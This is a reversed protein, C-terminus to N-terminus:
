LELTGLQVDDGAEIPTKPTRSSTDAKHVIFVTSGPGLGELVFRGDDDTTASGAGEARGAESSADVIAGVVPRGDDDVVTGRARAWPELRVTLEVDEGDALAVSVRAVGQPALVRLSFDGPRVDHLEFHGSPDWVFPGLPGTGSPRLQFRPVPRGDALVNGRVTALEHLVIEINADAAVDEAAAIGLGRPGTVDLQYTAASATAISFGGDIDSVARALEDRGSSRAEVFADAIPQGDTDVVRGALETAVTDVVIEVRQADVSTVALERPGEVIPVVARRQLVELGWTGAPVNDFSFSGDAQVGVAALDRDDHHLRVRLDDTAGGRNRVVGSVEGPAVLELAVDDKGGPSIEASASGTRGDEARASVIWSGAPVSAFTFAGAGDAVEALGRVAKTQRMTEFTAPGPPAELTLRAGGGEAVRGELRGGRTLPLVLSDPDPGISREIRPGVGGDGAEAHFSWVGEHVGSLEFTGDLATDVQLLNGARHSAHVRADPVPDEGEDVVRGTVTNGRQVVLRLDDRTELLAVRVSMPAPTSASPGAALLQYTAPQLPAIRFRGDADARVGQSARAGRYAYGTARPILLAYNVSADPVPTGREDVVIGEVAGGPLLDFDMTADAAVQIATHDPFYDDSRAELRWHGARVSLAYRGEDDARTMARSGASVRAGPVVGGYVDRITGSVTFGGRRLRLTSTQPGVVVRAPLYGAASVDVAVDEDARPWAITGNAGSWRVGHEGWRVSAGALPAESESDVVALVRDRDEEAAVVREAPARPSASAAERSVGGDVQPGPWLLWLVGAATAVSVIFLALLTRSGSKM